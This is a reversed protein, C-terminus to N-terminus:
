RLTVCWFVLMKVITVIAYNLTHRAVVATVCRLRHTVASEYIVTM